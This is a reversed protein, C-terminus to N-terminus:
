ATLARTVSAAVAPTARTRAAMGHTSESKRSESVIEQRMYAPRATLQAINEPGV